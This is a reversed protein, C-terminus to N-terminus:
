AAIKESTENCVGHRRQSVKMSTRLNNVVNLKGLTYFYGNPGFTKLSFQYYQHQKKMATM